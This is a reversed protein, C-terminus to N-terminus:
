ASRETGLGFKAPGRPGLTQSEVKLVEPGGTEYFRIVQETM